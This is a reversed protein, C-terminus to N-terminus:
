RNFVFRWGIVHLIKRAFVVVFAWVSDPKISVNSLLQILNMLTPLLCFFAAFQLKEISCSPNVLLWHALIQMMDVADFNFGFLKLFESNYCQTIM